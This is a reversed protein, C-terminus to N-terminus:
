KKNRATKIWAGLMNGADTLRKAAEEYQGHSLLKMEHSLRMMVKLLSLREDVRNLQSQKNKRYAATTIGELIGLSLNEIRTSVSHRLRKPFRETRAMIWKTTEIWEEFLRLDPGPPRPTNAM